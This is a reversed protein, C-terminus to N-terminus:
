RTHQRRRILEPAAASRPFKHSILKTPRNGTLDASILDKWFSPWCDAFVHLAQFINSVAQWSQPVFCRRQRWRMTRKSASRGSFRWWLKSTIKESTRSRNRAEKGSPCSTTDNQAHLTEPPFPSKRKRLSETMQLIRCGKATMRHRPIWYSSESDTLFFHGHQIEICEGFLEVRLSFSSFNVYLKRESEPDTQTSNRFSPSNEKTTIWM